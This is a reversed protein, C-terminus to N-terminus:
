MQQKNYCLEIDVNVDVEVDDVDVEVGRFSAAVCV